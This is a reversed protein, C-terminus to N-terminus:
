GDIKKSVGVLFQTDSIYQFWIDDVMNKVFFLGRGRESQTLEELDFQLASKWNEEPIGGANDIVMIKVQEDDKLVHIQIEETEKKGALEMAEVANIILEHAVFCLEKKSPLNYLTTYIAMTEDVFHIGRQDPLLNLIFEM